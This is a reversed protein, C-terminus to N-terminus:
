LLFGITDDGVYIVKHPLGFSYEVVTESDACALQRYGVKIDGQKGTEVYGSLQIAAYGDRVGVCYGFVGDGAQALRVRYNSDMTVLKGAEVESSCMFTAVHEDYGRFDINM